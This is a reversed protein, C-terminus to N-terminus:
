EYSAPVVGIARAIEARAQAALTRRDIGHATAIPPAVTIRAVTRPAAIINAICEGLSMDGIYAAADSFRDDPSRYQLALPQV